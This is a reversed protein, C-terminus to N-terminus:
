IALASRGTLADATDLPGPGVPHGLYGGALAFADRAHRIEDAMATSAREVLSSPAGLSLLELSFRAFAAISAHEMLAIELYRAGLAARDCVSLESTRPSLDSAFDARAVAPATRAEDFVLFPRGGSGGTGACMASCARSESLVICGIGNGCDTD